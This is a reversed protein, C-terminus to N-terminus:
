LFGEQVSSFCCHPFDLTLSLDYWVQLSAQCQFFLHFNIEGASFCLACRSPGTWGRKQLNDWFLNRNQFLLWSFHVMKLPCSAKWFRFPFIALMPQVEMQPLTAYIDKKKKQAEMPIRFNEKINM